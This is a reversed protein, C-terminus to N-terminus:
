YQADNGFFQQNMPYMNQQPPYEDQAPGSYQMGQLYRNKFM